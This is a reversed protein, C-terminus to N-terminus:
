ALRQDGDWFQLDNVYPQEGATISDFLALGGVVMSSKVGGRILLRARDNGESLDVGYEDSVLGDVNTAARYGASPAVIADDAWTAAAGLTITNTAYNVATVTTTTAGVNIADGVAYLSADEVVLTTVASGAGVARTAKWPRRLGDTHRYVPTGAIAIKGGQHWNVSSDLEAGGPLYLHQPDQVGHLIIRGGGFSRSSYGRGM